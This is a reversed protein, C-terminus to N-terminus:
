LLDVFLRDHRRQGRLGLVLLVLTVGVSVSVSRLLGAPSGAAAFQFLSIIGTAPNLVLWPGITHGLASAPYIIPTVYFWLILSAQVIFKVDRFYVHLAATVLSFATTFSIM